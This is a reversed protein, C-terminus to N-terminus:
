TYFLWLLPVSLYFTNLLFILSMFLYRVLAKGIYWTHKLRQSCSSLIYFVVQGFPDNKFKEKYQKATYIRGDIIVAVDSLFRFTNGFYTSIMTTHHANSGGYVTKFKQVTKSFYEPCSKDMYKDCYNFRYFIEDPTSTITAKDKDELFNNCNIDILNRSVNSEEIESNFSGLISLLLTFLLASAM